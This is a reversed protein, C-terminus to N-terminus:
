TADFDAYYEVKQMKFLDCAGAAFKKCHLEFYSFSGAILLWITGVAVGM